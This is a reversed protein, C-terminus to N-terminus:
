CRCYLIDDYDIHKYHNHHGQIFGKHQLLECKEIRSRREEVPPLWKSMHEHMAAEPMKEEFQQLEARTMLRYGKVTLNLEETTKIM